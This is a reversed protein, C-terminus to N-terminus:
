LLDSLKDGHHSGWPTTPCWWLSLLYIFIFGGPCDKAHVPRHSRILPESQGESAENLFIVILHLHHGKVFVSRLESSFAREVVGVRCGLNHPNRVTFPYIRVKKCCRSIVQPHPSCPFRLSLQLTKSLLLLFESKQAGKVDNSQFSTSGM